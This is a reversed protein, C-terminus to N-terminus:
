DQTRKSLALLHNGDQVLQTDVCGANPIVVEVKPNLIHCLQDTLGVKGPEHRIYHVVLGVLRETAHPGAAKNLELSVFHHAEGRRSDAGLQKLTLTARQGHHGTQTAVQSTHVPSAQSPLAPTTPFM